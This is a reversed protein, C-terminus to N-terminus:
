TRDAKPGPANLWQTVAAAGAIAAWFVLFAVSYVAIRSGEIREAGWWHLSGPDVVAFVLVELVGAMVFAPWAISLVRQM